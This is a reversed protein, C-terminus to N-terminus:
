QVLKEKHKSILAHAPQLVESFLSSACLLKFRRAIRWENEEKIKQIEELLNLIKKLSM